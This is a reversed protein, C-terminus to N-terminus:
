RGDIEEKRRRGDDLLAALRQRDGQAIADRYEGLAAIICDLEFAPEAM